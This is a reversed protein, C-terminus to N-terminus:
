ASRPETGLWLINGDADAFKMEYAWPRNRPEQVVRVGKSRYEDFLSDDELGIWVWAPEAADQQRLMIPQGDRSMGCVEAGPEGGWDVSFGLTGAYFGISKQLNRVPLIPITCEVVPPKPNM